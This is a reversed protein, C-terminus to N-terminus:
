EQLASHIKNYEDFDSIFLEVLEPDFHTGACRAIEERVQEPAWAEKYARRSMLADFVDAIAMARAQIPMQERTLGNPYGKGDM